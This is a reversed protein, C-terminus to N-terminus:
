NPRVVRVVRGHGDYYVAPGAVVDGSLDIVHRGAAASASANSREPLIFRDAEELNVTYGIDALSQITIASLYDAGAALLTTMLEDGFVSERWHGDVSGHTPDNEVPVIAGQYGAGGASVFAATAGPGVFHTDAGPNEQSSDRLLDLREWSAGSLGLLHAIGHLILEDVDARSLGDIDLKLAGILPLKSSERYGCGTFQSATNPGDLDVVAIMLFLDDLMDKKFDYELGACRITGPQWEIDELDSGHVARAWRNAQAVIRSRLEQAGQNVLAIEFQFQHPTEGDAGAAADSADRSTPVPVETTEALQPAVPASDCSATALAALTFFVNLTTRRINM